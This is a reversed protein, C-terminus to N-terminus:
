DWKWLPATVAVQTGAQIARTAAAQGTGAAGAAAGAAGLLVGSILAARGLSAAAALSQTEKPAPM